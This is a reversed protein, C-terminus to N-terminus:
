RNREKPLPKVGPPPPPPTTPPGVPASSVLILADDRLVKLYADAPTRGSSVLVVSGATLRKRAEEDTLKKGAASYFECQKLQHKTRSTVIRTEFATVPVKREVGEEKVTVYKTVPVQEALTQECVLEGRDAALEVVTMIVPPPGAPPRDPQQGFAPTGFWACAAALLPLSSKM